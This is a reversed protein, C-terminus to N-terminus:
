GDRNQVDEVCGSPGAQVIYTRHGVWGDARHATLLYYRTQGGQSREESRLYRATLRLGDGSEAAKQADAQQRVERETVQSQLAPCLQRWGLSGDRTVVSQIFLDSPTAGARTSRSGGTSTAVMGYVAVAGALSAAAIFVLGLAPVVAWRGRRMVDVTPM